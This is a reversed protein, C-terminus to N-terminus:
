CRALLCELHARIKHAESHFRLIGGARNTTLVPNGPDDFNKFLRVSMAHCVTSSVISCVGDDLYVLRVLTDERRIGSPYQCSSVAQRWQDVHEPDIPICGFEKAVEFCLETINSPRNMRM